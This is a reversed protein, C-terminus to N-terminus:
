QRFGSHFTFESRDRGDELESSFSSSLLLLSIREVEARQGRIKQLSDDYRSSFGEGLIESPNDFTHGFWNRQYDRWALEEVQCQRLIIMHFLIRMRDLCEFTEVCAMRLDISRQLRDGGSRGFSHKEGFLEADSLDQFRTRFREAIPQPSRFTPFASLRPDTEPGGRESHDLSGPSHSRDSGPPSAEDSSSPSPSLFRTSGAAALLCVAALLSVIM